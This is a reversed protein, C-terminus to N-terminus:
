RPPVRHFTTVATTGASGSATIKYVGDVLAATYETTVTGDAAASHPVGTYTSGDPLTVVFTVLETPQAGVLKLGVVEGSGDDVLTADIRVASPPPMVLEQGETLNDPDTLQNSAVIAGVSTQFRKAIDTLTDGRAVRYTTPPATTTTTASARPRPIAGSREPDGLLALLRNWDAIGCGDSRDLTITIRQRGVTGRIRARQPGGYEESCLRAKRQQAAVDAVTGDRVLACAPKSARALFGTGRAARDCRLTAETPVLVSTVSGTNTDITLRVPPNTSAAVGVLAVVVSGLIAGLSRWV